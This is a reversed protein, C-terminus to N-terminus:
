VRGASGHRAGGKPPGPVEGLAGTRRGLLYTPVASLLVLLMAYPAAAAYAAVSTETWLRTALTDLGTPRLLLTAPLEKMCTLFVLVAAAGIGPGILPLTVTRLVEIPGRGLSRAAEELEPPSHAAAAHVAGVALPMFLVAYGIALLTISQYLPYLVTIGLFVLSLGVVLGPLAHSAWTLRELLLPLVGRHRAALLGVPLALGVTLGAGILSVGLSAAAAAVVEGLSDPASLGRWMWFTLSGAPVGLALVLLSGLLGFAPAAWRGLTAPEPTRAPGSGIRAYRTRGRALGEGIVLVVTVAVLVTSLVVASTRDFGLTFATFIARTFTDFRMISVAGFDSLVYLAVLLAGGAIAPRLQPVTIRAFARWPGTGLSRAVEAAAPDMARLGAAVPLYVYPYSCLTLVLAAPWFGEAQPLVSVWAYAAVYSPVALPLAAIVAIPGRLPLDTRVVLWAAAVGLVVCGATVVIALLLSRAVLAPTRPSALVAVAASGAEATRVTLYALPTAALLVAPLSAGILLRAGRM